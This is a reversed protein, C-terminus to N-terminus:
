HSVTLLEFNVVMNKFKRFLCTAALGSGIVYNEYVPLGFYMKYMVKSLRERFDLWKTKRCDDLSDGFTFGHVRELDALFYILDHMLRWLFIELTMYKNAM